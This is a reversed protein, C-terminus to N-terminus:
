EAGSLKGWAAFAAELARQAADLDRGLSTARRVGDPTLYLDPDALTTKIREVEAERTAVEM